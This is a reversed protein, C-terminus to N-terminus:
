SMSEALLVRDKGADKGAKLASEAKDILENITSGHRPFTAIGITISTPFRWNRSAEKVAERFREGVVRAGEAFTDPLIAIFEDGSRWRAVFDHPRLNERFVASIDRIMTDGAAYNINNYTRINDGDMLLIAFRTNAAASDALCKELNPLAAQMNPLGSIADTYAEAQTQDLMRGMHLVQHVNRTSIWRMPFTVDAESTATWNNRALAAVKLEDAMFFRCATEPTNKVALMAENMQMLVNVPSASTGLKHQIVAVHVAPDALKIAKAETEIRALIRQLLAAHDAFTGSQLLVAFEVGGVRYVPQTGSEETLLIGLWNIASDGYVHGYTDNLMRMHNIEFFCLSVNQAWTVHPFVETILYEHPTDALPMSALDEIFGLYNKCKTLHDIRFVDTTPM